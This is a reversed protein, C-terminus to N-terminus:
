SAPWGFFPTWNMILSELFYAAVPPHAVTLEVVTLGDVFGDELGAKRAVLLDHVAILNVRYAGYGPYIYTGTSPDM